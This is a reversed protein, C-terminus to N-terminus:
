APARVETRDEVEEALTTRGHRQGAEAEPTGQSQSDTCAVFADFTHGCNGCWRVESCPAACWFEEKRQASPRTDDFGCSLYISAFEDLINQAQIRDIGGRLQWRLAQHENM